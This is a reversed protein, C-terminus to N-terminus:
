DNIVERERYQKPTMGAHRQFASYFSPRTSFGVHKGIEEITCIAYHKDRLMLKAKRIRHQNMLDAFNTGFHTKMVASIYRTNTQLERALQTTNYTPLCYIKDVVLKQLIKENLEDALAPNLARHYEKTMNM